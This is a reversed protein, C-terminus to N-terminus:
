PSGFLSWPGPKCAVEKGPTVNTRKVEVTLAQQAQGAVVQAVLDSSRPIGLPKVLSGSRSYPDM